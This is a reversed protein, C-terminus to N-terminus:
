YVTAGADALGETCGRGYMARGGTLLAVRGKLSFADLTSQAAIEADALPVSNRRDIIRKPQTM